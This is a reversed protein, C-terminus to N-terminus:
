GLEAHFCPRLAIGKARRIPISLGIMLGCRQGRRVAGAICVRTFSCRRSKIFRRSM